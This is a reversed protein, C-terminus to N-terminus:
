LNLRPLVEALEYEEVLWKLRLLLTVKDSELLRIRKEAKMLEAHYDVAM